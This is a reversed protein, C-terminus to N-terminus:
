NRVWSKQRWAAASPLRKPHAERLERRGLRRVPVVPLRAGVEGTALGFVAGMTWVARKM